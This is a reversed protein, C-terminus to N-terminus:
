SAPYSKVELSLNIILALEESIWRSMKKVYGYSIKDNGFSQKNDVSSIHKMGEEKTIQRSSFVAKNNKTMRRGSELYDDEAPGLSQTVEM